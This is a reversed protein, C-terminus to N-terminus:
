VSINIRRTPRSFADSHVRSMAVRTKILNRFDTMITYLFARLKEHSSNNANYRKPRCHAISLKERKWRNHTVKVAFKAVIEFFGLLVVFFFFGNFNGLKIKDFNAKLEIKITNIVNGEFYSLASINATRNVISHLGPIRIINYTINIFFFFYNGHGDAEWFVYVSRTHYVYM